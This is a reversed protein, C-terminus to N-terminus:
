RCKFMLFADMLYTRYRTYYNIYRVNKLWSMLDQSKLYGLRRRSFLIHRRVKKLSNSKKNSLKQASLINSFSHLLSIKMNVDFVRGQGMDGVARRREIDANSTSGLYTRRQTLVRDLHYLGGENAAVFNLFLDHTIDVHELDINRVLDLLERTVVMSMGLYGPFKLYSNMPVFSLRGRKRGPHKVHSSLVTDGYFRSFTSTLSLISRNEYVIRAMVEIKSPMWIDDQDSFFIVDGTSSYAGEIFNKLVGKNAKNCMVKWSHLENDDIFKQCLQVTKDVSGDDYILVEDPSITQDLISRMQEFIFEEGNYTSIVVSIKSNM